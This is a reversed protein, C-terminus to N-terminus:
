PTDSLQRHVARIDIREAHRHAGQASKLARQVYDAAKHAGIRRLRDRARRIEVCAKLALRADGEKWERLKM